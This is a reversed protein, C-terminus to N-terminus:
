GRFRAPAFRDGIYGCFADRKEQWENKHNKADRYERAAKYMKYLLWDVYLRAWGLPTLLTRSDDSFILETGTPETLDNVTLETATEGATQTLAHGDWVLTDGESLDAETTFGRLEAVEEGSDPDLGPIAFFYNGAALGDEGVTYLWREAYVVPTFDEHVMLLVNIQIDLEAESLWDALQKNTFLSLPAELRAEHIVDFVTRYGERM